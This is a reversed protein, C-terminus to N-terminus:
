CWALVTRWDQHIYFSMGWGHEEYGKWSLLFANKVSERRKEWDVKGNKGEAGLGGLGKGPIIDAWSDKMKGESGSGSGGFWYLLGLVVLGVAAIRRKGGYWKGKRAGYGAPKDKYMPLGKENGTFKSWVNDEFRRQADNFDPVRNPIQFSM